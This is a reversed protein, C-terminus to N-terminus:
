CGTCQFAAIGGQGPRNSSYASFGETVFIQNGYIAPSALAGYTRNFVPYDALLLGTMPDIALLDGHATNTKTSKWPGLIYVVANVDQNVVAASSVIDSGFNQSRWLLTGASDTSLADIGWVYGFTGGCVSQSPCGSGFILETIGGITVLAGTSHVMSQVNGIHASTDFDFYMAGTTADLGFVHGNNMGSYVRTANGNADTLALITGFDDDFKPNPDWFSWAQTPSNNVLTDLDIADVRGVTNTQAGVGFYAYHHPTGNVSVIGEAPSSWIADGCYEPAPQCYQAHDPPPTDNRTSYAWLLPGKGGLPGTYNVPFALVNDATVGVVVISNGNTSMIAPSSTVQGSTGYSWILSGTSANIDYVCGTRSSGSTGWGIFLETTSVGNVLGTTVAPSSSVWAPKKNTGCTPFPENWVIQGTATNIAYLTSVHLTKTSTSVITNAVYYLIGQYIAPSDEAEGTTTYASASVPVLSTANAKSLITNTSQNGDRATDGRFEPWDPLTGDFKQSFRHPAQPAQQTHSATSPAAAHTSQSRIGTIALPVAISLMILFILPLWFKSRLFYIM